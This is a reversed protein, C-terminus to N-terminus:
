RRLRRLARQVISQRKKSYRESHARQLTRTFVKFTLLSMRRSENALLEELSAAALAEDIGTTPHCLSEPLNGPDWGTDDTLLAGVGGCREEVFAIEAATLRNRWSVLAAEDIGAKPGFSSNGLWDRGGLTPRTLVPDFELGLFDAVSRMSGDSKRVLDGYRVVAYRDPWFRAAALGRLTAEVWVEL